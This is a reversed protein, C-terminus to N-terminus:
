TYRREKGNAYRVLTDYERAIFGEQKLLRASEELNEFSFKDITPLNEYAWLADEEDGGVAKAALNLQRRQETSETIGARRGKEEATM